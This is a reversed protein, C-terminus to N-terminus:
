KGASKVTGSSKQRVYSDESQMNSGTKMCIHFDSTKIKSSDYCFILFLPIVKFLYEFLFCIKSM